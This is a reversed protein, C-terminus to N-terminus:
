KQHKCLSRDRRPKEKLFAASRWVRWGLTSTFISWCVQSVFCRYEEDAARTRPKGRRTIFHFAERATPWPADPPDIRMCTRFRRQQVDLDNHRRRPQHHLAYSRVSCRRATPFEPYNRNLCWCCIDIPRGAPLVFWLTMFWILIKDDRGFRVRIEQQAAASLAAHAAKRLSLRM